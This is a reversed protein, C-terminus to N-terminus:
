EGAADEGFAALRACGAGGGALAEVLVGGIEGFEDELELLFGVEGEGFGGVGVGDVCGADEFDEGVGEEGDDEGVGCEM